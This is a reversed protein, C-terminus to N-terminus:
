SQGCTSNRNRDGFSNVACDLEDQRTMLLELMMFNTLLIDPKAKAIAQRKADSEQGTYRSFTPRLEEELGLDGNYSRRFQGDNKSLDTLQASMDIIADLHNASLSTQVM